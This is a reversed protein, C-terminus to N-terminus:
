EPFPCQDMGASTPCVVLSLPLAGVTCFVGQPQRNGPLIGVMPRDSSRLSLCLGFNQIELLVQKSAIAEIKSQKAIVPNSM